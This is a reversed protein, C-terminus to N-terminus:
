RLPEAAVIEIEIEGDFEVLFACGHLAPGEREVLALSLRARGAAMEDLQAGSCSFPADLPGVLLIRGATEITSLRDLGADGDADADHLAVLETRTVFRTSNAAVAGDPLVWSTVAAREGRTARGVQVRTMELSPTSEAGFLESQAARRERADREAKMSPPPGMTSRPPRDDAAPDSQRLPAPASHDAFDRDASPAPPAPASEAPKAAAAETSPPSPAFEAEDLPGQETAAADDVRDASVAPLSQAEREAGPGRLAPVFLVVALAVAGLLGAAEWTLIQSGRATRRGAFRARLRTEFGPPLPEARRLARRVDRAEAVLTALRVDQRVRAEFRQREEDNLRDDLYDQLSDEYRRTSM